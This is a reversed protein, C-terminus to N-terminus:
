KPTYQQNAEQDLTIAKTGNAAAEDIVKKYLDFDMKGM